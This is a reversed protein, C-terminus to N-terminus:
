FVTRIMQVGILGEGSPVTVIDFVIIGVGIVVAGWKLLEQQSPSTISPYINEYDGGPQQREWHPAHTGNHDTPIWVDGNRDLWGTGRGNPNKMRRDGGKPSKFDPHTPPGKKMDELSMGAQQPKIPDGPGNGNTQQDVVGLFDSEPNVWVSWELSDNKEGQEQYDYALKLCGM